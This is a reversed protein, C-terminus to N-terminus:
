EELAAHWGLKITNGANAAWKGNDWIQMTVSLDYPIPTATAILSLVHYENAKWKSM